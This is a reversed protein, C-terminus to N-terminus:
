FVEGWVLKGKEKLQVTYSNDPNLREACAWRLPRSVGNTLLEGRIKLKQGYMSEPLIFGAQRVDGGFPRGADLCGGTEFTRDLSELTVKLVGPVGAVGDNAFGVILEPCGRRERQWIWSPRVRYGMRRQLTTFGRPYRQHYRALNDAETWLSWYNAGLELVKLMSKERANVGSEDVPIKEIDYDRRWGQEMVVALWPPRNSLREIQIPEDHIISDSRLWGGARVTMDLVQRNGVNSGDPQTNVALPVKQWAELQLRTIEVCTKEATLYDPFPSPLSGSHGEGWFGYMMLDMFEVLPDNDFGAALLENLERFAKLFEPHHYQPEYHDKNRRRGIKVLPIKEQLFDPMAVRGPQGVTNSLQVRFGVRLGYTKAADFTLKWIPHLDLRGASRQVDRWDCRIYLLDVFPLGALKEVHRELSEEGRRAALSPGGEEWTYGVLGLGFNRIHEDSPSTSGVTAWTEVERDGFPGQNLREPVRPGPGFDFGEWLHVPVDARPAGASLHGLVAAAAGAKFFRRRDVM